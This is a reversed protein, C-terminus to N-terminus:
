RGPASVSASRRQGIRRIQERWRSLRFRPSGVWAIVPILLFPVEDLSYLLGHPNHSDVVVKIYDLWL